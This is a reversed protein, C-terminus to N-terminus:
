GFIVKSDGFVLLPSSNKREFPGLRVRYIRKGTVIVRTFLRRARNKHEIQQIEGAGSGSAQGGALDM